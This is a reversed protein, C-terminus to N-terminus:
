ITGIAIYNGTVTGTYASATIFRFLATTTSQSYCTTVVQSAAASADTTNVCVVSVISTFPVPFTVSASARTNSSVITGSYSGGQM